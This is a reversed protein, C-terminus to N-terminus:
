GDLFALFGDIIEEAVARARDPKTKSGVIGHTAGEAPALRGPGGLRKLAAKMEEITGFADKTGHAFFAPVRIAPLHETRPKDPKGPPHLPYSLLLLGDCVRPDEAALMSAQRGGYSSGGLYVRGGFRDRLADAARRLGERDRAAGSPSPPGQPRKQRFPLDCRLASVGREAFVDCLTRLFLGNRDGGAGHTLVISRGGPTLAPHLDGATAPEDAYEVRFPESAM